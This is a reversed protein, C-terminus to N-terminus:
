PGVFMRRTATSCDEAVTAVTYVIMFIDYVITQGKLGIRSLPLRIFGDRRLNRVTVPLAAMALTAPAPEALADLVDIAGSSIGM